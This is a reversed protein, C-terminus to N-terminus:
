RELMDRHYRRLFVLGLVGLVLSVGFVYAPSVYDAAYQLYFAGRMEGTVHMLPNFWLFQQAKHPLTEYLFIVGSLLFLPRMAIGFIRQYLPFMTMLFCNMLGVGLGFSIAMAYALLARDILFVTRTEWVSTIGVLLIFSVLLQNVVVLIARAVIADVYTVRPYNLLAKSFNISQAVNAAVAGYMTFPLLGTAFFIPFNTGLRPTRFGLSFIYSMLALGLVPELIMWAYGGPSRGHTVSMERLILAMVSRAMAILPRARMSRLRPRTQSHSM